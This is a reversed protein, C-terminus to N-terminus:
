RQREGEIRGLFYAARTVRTDVRGNSLGLTHLAARVHEQVTARTIAYAGMIEPIAMGAVRARLIREQSPTLRALREGFDVVDAPMALPPTTASPSHFSRPGRENWESTKVWGSHILTDIHECTM